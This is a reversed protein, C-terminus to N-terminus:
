RAGCPLAQHLANRYAPAVIVCPRREMFKALMGEFLEPSGTIYGGGHTYLMPPLKGSSSRPRYIKVRIKADGDNTPLYREEFSMISSFNGGKKALQSGLLKHALKTSWEYRLLYKSFIQQWYVEAPQLDEHLM